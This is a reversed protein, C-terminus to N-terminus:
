ILRKEILYDFFIRNLKTALLLGKSGNVTEIALIFKAVKGMQEDFQGIKNINIESLQFPVNEQVDWLQGVEDLLFDYVYGEDHLAIISQTIQVNVARYM